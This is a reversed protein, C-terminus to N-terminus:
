ADYRFVWRNGVFTTLIQTGTPPITSGLNLAFFTGNRVSVIGAGGEVETGLLILPQCAYYAQATTPYTRITTTLALLNPLGLSPDSDRRTADDALAVERIFLRKADDSSLM